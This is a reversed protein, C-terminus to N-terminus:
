RTGGFGAVLNVARDNLVGAMEEHGPGYFGGLVRGDADSFANGAVGIDYELRPSRFPESIGRVHVTLDDFLATGELTSLEVQLEADGFVPPLMDQGLDVGILSGSWTIGGQLSPNADALSMGPATGFADAAARLTDTVEVSRGGEYELTREVGAGWASYRGWAGYGYLEPENETGAPSIEYGIDAMFAFDLESPRYVETRDSCYAMISTCVGLHGWDVEAGPTNPVVTNDNEDLWQFPVPEGGNARTARPGEFTYDARNTYRRLLEAHRHANDGLGIVHGIEHAMVTTSDAHRRSLNVAGLWPRYDGHINERDRPGASSQRSNGRDFVFILVDDVPVDEALTVYENEGAENRHRIERGREAVRPRWDEQIRWSWSKGAREMRARTAENFNPAFRWDFEINLTGAPGGRWRGYTIGDREGIIEVDEARVNRLRTGTGAPDGGAMNILDTIRRTREAVDSANVRTLGLAGRLQEPDNWQDLLDEATPNNREHTPHVYAFTPTGGTQAYEVSGDASVRVECASGGAPCTVVVNGHARSEGARVTAGVRIGHGLPLGLSSYLPTVTPRGGEYAVTGDVSVTLVCDDGAPPCAVMVNGREVSTGAPVTFGGADLGHNAQALVGRGLSAGGGGGGGCGSLAIALLAALSLVQVMKRTSTSMARASMRKKTGEGM